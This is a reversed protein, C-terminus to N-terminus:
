IRNRGEFAKSANREAKFRQRKAYDYRQWDAWTWEGPQLLVRMMREKWKHARRVRRRYVVQNLM